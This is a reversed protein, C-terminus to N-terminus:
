LEDYRLLELKLEPDQENLAATIERLITMCRKKAQYVQNNTYDLYAAVKEVPRQQIAYMEFAQWTDPEVRERLKEYVDNLVAKRWEAMFVLDEESEKVSAEDEEEVASTFGETLKRRRGKARYHDVIKAHVIRGFYTRFRAIDPDFKFTKSKKFFDLMVAQLVDDADQPQLGKFKAVGLVVKKYRRYFEDWSIEDGSAIRDLLTKSTTPYKLAM